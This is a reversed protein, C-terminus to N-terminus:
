RAAVMQDHENSLQVALRLKLHERDIEMDLIEAQMARYLVRKAKLEDELAILEVETEEATLPEAIWPM